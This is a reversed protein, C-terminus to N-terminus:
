RIRDTFVVLRNPYSKSITNWIGQCTILNLHAGEDSSQFVSSTDENQKYIRSTRVVFILTEGKKNEVYLTDGKRLSHLNNFVSIKGNKWVGYHGDIVASGREGPRSGSKFWGASDTDKPVDMAGQPTLGVHEITANVHIKPIRLRVPSYDSTREGVVIGPVVAM